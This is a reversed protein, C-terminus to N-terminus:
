YKANIAQNKLSNATHEFMNFITKIFSTKDIYYSDNNIFNAFSENGIDIEKM